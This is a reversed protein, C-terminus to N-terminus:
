RRTGSPDGRREAGDEEPGGRVARALAVATGRRATAGAVPCPAGTRGPETRLRPVADRGGPAPLCTRAWRGRVACAAAARAVAPRLRARVARADETRAPPTRVRGGVAGRGCAAREGARSAAGGDASRAAALGGGGRLPGDRMFGDDPQPERISGLWYAWYNLNAAEASDDDALGKEIFDLLPQRDGLRVLATGTSRATAWRPNWGRASILDRRGHLAGTIWSTAEPSSDYSCLYLAQRHLPLGDDGARLASDATDRLRAFFANRDPQPLLPAKAVPGRRGTAARGALAPPVTGNLAWAIMHATDRTHVWSALPHRASIEPHLTSTIVREADMAPDLLHLVKSDAGLALLRRRVDLLAGAKVKALPRRGTEWGQWTALDIGMAEAMGAQTRTSTSERAVRLVFGAITGVTAYGRTVNKVAM